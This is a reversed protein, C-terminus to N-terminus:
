WARWENGKRSHAFPPKAWAQADDMHEHFGLPMGFEDDLFKRTSPFLSMLHHAVIREIGTIISDDPEM